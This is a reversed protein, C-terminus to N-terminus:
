RVGGARGRRASVGPIIEAKGEERWEAVKANIQERVESKIEGTDGTPPPHPMPTTLSSVPICPWLSSLGLSCAHLGSPRPPQSPGRPAAGGDPRRLCPSPLPSPRVACLSRPLCSAPSLPRCPRMPPPPLVRAPPPWRPAPRVPSSPWSARPAPTSSTSRTCPCPTCWRRASRCSGTRASCSSPRCPPRPVPTPTLASSPM